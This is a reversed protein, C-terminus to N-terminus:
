VIESCIRNISRFSVNPNRRSSASLLNASWTEEGHNWTGM